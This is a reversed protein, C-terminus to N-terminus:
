RGELVERALPVTIRRRTALSARDLEELLRCLAGFDRPAHRLLYALTEAPLDLGRSRARAALADPHEAEPLPQLAHIGAAAFRSALDPLLFRTAAPPERAALVLSGGREQLENHLRFLGREWDADGAARDVADLLVADLEEYGELVGPGLSAAREFPLYAVADGRDSLRACTAQLLHTKGTGSPGCLWLVPRGPGRALTLLQEVALRNHGVRFTEFRCSVELQVGLPLQRAGAVSTM